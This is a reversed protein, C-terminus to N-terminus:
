EGIKKIAIGAQRLCDMLLPVVNGRVKIQTGNVNVWTDYDDWFFEIIHDLNIFRKHGTEDKVSIFMNEGKLPRPRCVFGGEDKFKTSFILRM